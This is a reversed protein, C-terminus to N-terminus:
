IVPPNKKKKKLKKPIKVETPIERKQGGFYYPFKDFITMVIRIKEEDNLFTNMYAFMTGKYLSNFDQNVAWIGALSKIASLARFLKDEDDGWFGKAAYIDKAIKVQNKHTDAGILVELASPKSGKAPLKKNNDDQWKKAIAMYQTDSQFSTYYKWRELAEKELAERIDDEDPENWWQVFKYIGFGALALAGWGAAEKPKVHDDKAM